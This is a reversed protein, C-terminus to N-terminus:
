TYMITAQFDFDRISKIFLNQQKKEPTSTPRSCISFQM